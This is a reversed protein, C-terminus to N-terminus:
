VIDPISGVPFFWEKVRYFPCPPTWGLASKNVTMFMQPVVLPNQMKELCM